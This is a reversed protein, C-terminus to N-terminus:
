ALREHITRVTILVSFWCAELGRSGYGRARWGQLGTTARYGQLWCGPYRAARHWPPRPTVLHVSLRASSVALTLNVAVPSLRVATQSTFGRRARHVTLTCAASYANSDGPSTAQKSGAGHRGRARRSSAVLRGRAQESGAGLRSRAQRSGAALRGRAQRSVAGDRWSTAAQESRTRQTCAQHSSDGAQAGSANCAAALVILSLRAARIIFGSCPMIRPWPLHCYRCAGDLHRSRAM